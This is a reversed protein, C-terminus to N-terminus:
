QAHDRGILINITHYDQSGLLLVLKHSAEICCITAKASAYAPRSCKVIYYVLRQSKEKKDQAEREAVLVGSVARPRAMIYLLLDENPNLAILV